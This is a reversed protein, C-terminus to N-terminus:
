DEGIEKKTRVLEETVAAIVSDKHKLKAELQAIKQDGGNRRSRPTRDFAAAGNEFFTRQWAYFVSPQLDNEECIASIPKGELLHLRLLKIKDEASLHRRTSGSQNSSPTDNKM